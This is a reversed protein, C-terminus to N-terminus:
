IASRRSFRSAMLARCPDTLVVDPKFTSFTALAEEGSAAVAVHYNKSELRLRWLRLLDTEDDVLLIKYQWGM